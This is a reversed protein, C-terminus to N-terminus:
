NISITVASSTGRSTVSNYSITASWDGASLRSGDISIWGCSTTQADASATKSESVMQSSRVMTLTCTGGDEVIGQVYSGVEAKNSYNYGSIIPTVNKKAGSSTSDSSSSPSSNALDKKFNETEQKEEKTPPGYNIGSTTTYKKDTFMPLDIVNQADLFALVSVGLVVGLLGILLKLALPRSPKKNITRYRKM